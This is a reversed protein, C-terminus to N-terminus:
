EWGLLRHARAHRIYVRKGSQRVLFSKGHGSSYAGHIGDWVCPLPGDKRPGCPHWKDTLPDTSTSATTTSGAAPVDAAACGPAVALAAVAALAALRTTTNYM